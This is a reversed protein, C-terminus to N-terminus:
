GNAVNRSEKLTDLLRKVPAALGGPPSDDLRYWVTGEAEAARPVQGRLHVVVPLIDLDFHTFSHRIVPWRESTGAAAPIRDRCWEDPTAGDVEPFSWLGGWVGAPPRRELLVADGAIALLMTTRRLPKDKKPKSAPYAEVNGAAFARCDERVPCRGCGPRRRTCLTAGLDMIAQTYDTVRAAPTRREALAWLRAAVDAKGPWGAIAAHRALVRKANGDLIAHRQGFALALIAAATSRGIGPLSEVTERDAPFRAGQEDRLRKAAAHLNRARAYYGLGSWLDLVEDAHARALTDIDPFRAVFRQFYPIVTAVQTQQLMIESVWVLYPDPVQWPLDKRGHRDFWDLLRSAFDAM